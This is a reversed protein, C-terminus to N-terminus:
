SKERFCGDSANLLDRYVVQAAVRFLSFLKYRAYKVTKQAAHAQKGLGHLPAPDEPLAGVSASEGKPM